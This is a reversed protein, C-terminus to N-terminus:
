GKLTFPPPINRCDLLFLLVKHQYLKRRTGEKDKLFQKDLVYIDLKSSTKGRTKKGFHLSSINLMFSDIKSFWTLGSFWIYKKKNSLQELPEEGSVVM